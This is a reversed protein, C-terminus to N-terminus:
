INFDFHGIVSFFVLFFYCFSMGSKDLFHKILTETGGPAIFNTKSESLKRFNEIRQGLPLLLNQELLDDYFRHSFSFFYIFYQFWNFGAM